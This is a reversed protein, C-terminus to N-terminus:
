RRRGAAAQSAMWKMVFSHASLCFPSCDGLRTNSPLIEFTQKARILPVAPRIRTRTPAAGTRDCGAARQGRRPTRALWAPPRRPQRRGSLRCPLAADLPEITWSGRLLSMRVFGKRQPEREKLEIWRCSSSGDPTSQSQVHVAVDRAAVVLFRPAYRMYIQYDSPATGSLLRAEDVGSVLSKYHTFDCVLPFIRPTPFPLEATARVERVELQPDDRFALTVGDKTGTPTWGGASSQTLSLLVLFPGLGLQM